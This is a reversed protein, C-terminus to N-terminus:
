RLSRSLSIFYIFSISNPNQIFGSGIKTTCQQDLVRFNPNCNTRYCSDPNVRCFITQCFCHIIWHSQVCLKRVYKRIRYGCENQKWATLYQVVGEKHKNAV